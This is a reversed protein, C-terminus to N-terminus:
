DEKTKESYEEVEEKIFNAFSSLKEGAYNTAERVQYGLTNEEKIKTEFVIDEIQNYDINEKNESVIQEIKDYDIVPENVIVDAFEEQKEELDKIEEKLSINEVLLGMILIFQVAIITLFLEKRKKTSMTKM